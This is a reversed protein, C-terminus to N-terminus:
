ALKSGRNQLQWSPGGRNSTKIVPLNRAKEVQIWGSTALDLRTAPLAVRSELNVVRPSFEASWETTQFVVWAAGIGRKKVAKAPTKGCSRL